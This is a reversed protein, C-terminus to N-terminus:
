YVGRVRLGTLIGFPHTVRLLMGPDIGHVVYLQISRSKLAYEVMERVEHDHYMVRMGDEFGLGPVLYLVNKIRGKDYGGCKFELDRLWFGCLEEADEEVTRREGGLYM